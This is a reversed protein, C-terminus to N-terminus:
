QQRPSESESPTTELRIRARRGILNDSLRRATGVGLSVTWDPLSASDIASPVRQQAVYLLPWMAGQRLAGRLCRRTIDTISDDIFDFAPQTMEQWRLRVVFHWRLRRLADLLADFTERSDIPQRGGCHQILLNAVTEPDNGFDHRRLAAALVTAANKQMTPEVRKATNAAHFRYTVLTQPLQVMPGIDLLRHYLDYDDAYETHPRMFVGLTPLTARRFMLCSYALPNGLYLLWELMVSNGAVARRSPSPSVHGPLLDQAVCSVAVIEPHTELHAAQCALREPLMIDDHDITAVYTGRAEAVGVNRAAVVGGNAASRILRIRPDDFRAVVDVTDDTSGDDVILFEFDTRTQGLVSRITEAITQRGNYTTMLVTITPDIAVIPHCEPHEAM